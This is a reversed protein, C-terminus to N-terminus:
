SGAVTVTASPPPQVIEGHGLLAAGKLLRCFAKKSVRHHVGEGTSSDKMAKYAVELRELEVIRFYEEGRQWIQNQALKM